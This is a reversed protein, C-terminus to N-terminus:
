DYIKKFQTQEIWEVLPVYGRIGSPAIRRRMFSFVEEPHGLYREGVPGAFGYLPIAHEGALVSLIVAGAPCLVGDDSKESAVWVEKVLGQAFFFGAMNDTIIVPVIGARSLRRCNDRAGKLDPRGEMVVVQSVKQASFREVQRPTLRGLCMVASGPKISTAQSHGSIM